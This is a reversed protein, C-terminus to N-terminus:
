RQHRGSAGGALGSAALRGDAAWWRQWIHQLAADRVNKADMGRHRQQKAIAPLAAAYLAHCRPQALHLVSRTRAYRRHAVCFFFFFFFFFLSVSEGEYRSEDAMMDVCIRRRICLGVSLFGSASQLLTYCSVNYLSAFSTAACLLSIFRSENLHAPSPASSFSHLLRHPTINSTQKRSPMKAAGKERRGAVIACDSAVM